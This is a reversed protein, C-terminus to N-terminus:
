TSIAQLSTLIEQLDAPLPSHFTLEAETSPSRLHLEAAHLFQRTLGNIRGGHYLEDGALPHGTAAFHVRIQHTRGTDLRAELYSFGPLDEIVTYHTRAPRQGIGYVGMRKRNKPDRGIPADILGQSPRVTGTALARYHRGAERSAIQRQLHKRAGDNLAVVMLGSTDKDLRHVIGPRDAPGVSAAAPFHAMLANALTGYRHGAAPHVVMGAPKDIIALDADQYVINLPLVEPEASLADARIVEGEVRDGSALRLSPKAPSGNVRVQRGRVLAAAASRSLSARGALFVDLRTGAMAETVVLDVRETV